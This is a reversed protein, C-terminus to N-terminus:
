SDEGFSDMDDEIDEAIKEDPALLSFIRFPFFIIKLFLKIMILHGGTHVYFCDDTLTIIVNEVTRDISSFEFIPHDTNRNKRKRRHNM